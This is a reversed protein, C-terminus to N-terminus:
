DKFFKGKKLKEIVFNRVKEAIEITEKAEHIDPLYFKQPYRADIAYQTLKGVNMDFLIQFENDLEVM